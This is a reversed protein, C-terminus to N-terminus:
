KSQHTSIGSMWCLMRGIGKTKRKTMWRYMLIPIFIGLLISMLATIWLPIDFLKMSLQFCVVQIFWSYIYITYSSGNMGDLLHLQKKEYLGACSMMLLIGSIGSLINRNDWQYHLCFILLFVSVIGTGVIALVPHQLLHRGLNREVYVYGMFFYFLYHLIGDINLIAEKGIPVLVTILALLALWLISVKLRKLYLISLISVFFITPLFWFSGIVNDYPYLLNHIFADFSGDVPRVALSSLMVKPIFVLSSIVLYPIMMRQFKKAIYGNKGIIITNRVDRNKQRNTFALLYGSIFFFLPMHFSYIWMCLPHNGNQFFSHGAVVLIIGINQAFSIKKDM